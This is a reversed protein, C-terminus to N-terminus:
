IGERGSQKRGFLKNRIVRTLWWIIANQGFVAIVISPMFSWRPAGHIGGFFSNAMLWVPMYFMNIPIAAVPAEHAFSADISACGLASAILYATWEFTWRRNSIEAM